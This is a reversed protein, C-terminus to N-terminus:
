RTMRMWDAVLTEASVPLALGARGAPIGILQGNYWGPAEIGMNTAFLTTAREGTGFALDVPGSLGRTLRVANGAPDVRYVFGAPGDAVYLFGEADFAMGQLIEGLEPAFAEPTGDPRIRFVGSRGRDSNVVFLEGAPSFALNNPNRIGRVFVEATGDPLARDVTDSGTQAVYLTGDPGFAIDVPIDLREVVPVLSGDPGVRSVTHDLGNSVYLNGEADFALANPGLTGGNSPLGTAITETAGGITMKVISAGEPDTDTYYLNNGGDVALALPLGELPAVIRPPPVAVVASTNGADSSDSVSLFFIQDAEAGVEIQAEQGRILEAHFTEGSQDATLTASLPYTDDAVASSPISILAGAAAPEVAIEPEYIQPAGEDFSAGEEVRIAYAGTQRQKVTQAESARVQLRYTGDAPFEINSLISFVGLASDDNEFLVAGDGDLVRLEPDLFHWTPNVMVSYRTGASVTLAYEDVDGVPGIESAFAGGPALEIGDEEDPNIEATVNFFGTQDLEAALVVLFLSGDQLPTFGPILAGPVGEEPVDAAIVNMSGETLALITELGDVGVAMFDYTQNESLIVEFAMADGPIILEEDSTFPGNFLPVPNVTLTYPGISDEFQGGLIILHEGTTEPTFILVSETGLFDRNLAVLEGAPNVVGVVPDLIRDPTSVAMLVPSGRRLPIVFEDIDGRPGAYGTQSQFQSIARVGEDGAHTRVLLTYAAPSPLGRGTIRVRYNGPVGVPTYLYAGQFNPYNLGQNQDIVNQNPNLLDLVATFDRAEFRLIVEVHAPGALNFSYVDFSDGAGLEGSVERGTQIATQAMSEFPNTWCFAIFLAAPLCRFTNM